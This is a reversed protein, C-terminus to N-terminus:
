GAVLEAPAGTEDPVAEEEAGEEAPAVSPLDLMPVDALAAAPGQEPEAGTPAAVSRTAVREVWAQVLDLLFPADLGLLGAHTVPVPRGDWELNWDVLARAMADAVLSLAQQQQRRAARPNRLVPWAAEVAQEGIFGPKRARLTLGPYEEFSLRFVDLAAARDYGM